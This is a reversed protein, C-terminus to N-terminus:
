RRILAFAEWAALFLGAIVPGIVFGNIGFVAIGGLTTVFVLWDPMKTDKGILIPRLLNDIMGIVFLGCAVLIMAKWVAGTALLFLAMPVWVLGTGVAPILSGVAMLSGWLLPAGIGLAWFIIGGLLGQLVAVILGGRITARIVAIFRSAMAARAVPPIPLEDLARAGIRRGDRLLFFTVYLLVGLQVLFVFAGQGINLLRTAVSNFSGLLGGLLRDQNRALENIDTRALLRQLWRPLGEIVDRLMAALDIPNTRLWAIANVIEGVVGSGVALLPIIVLLLVLLLTVGAARGEKGPWREVLRQQIPDFVIAIIVAWLLPGAYPFLILALLITVGALLALFTKNEFSDRM